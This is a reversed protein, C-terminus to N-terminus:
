PESKTKIASPLGGGRMSSSSFPKEDAAQVQAKQLSNGVIVARLERGVTVAQGISGDADVDEESGDHARRNM